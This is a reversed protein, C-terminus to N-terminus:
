SGDDVGRRNCEFVRNLLEALRNVGNERSLPSIDDDIGHGVRFRNEMVRRIFDAIGVGDRGAFVEGRGFQVLLKGLDAAEDGIGLIPRGARLYEFTSGPMANDFTPQCLLDAGLMYAIADPHSVPPIVSVRVVKQMEDLQKRTGVAVTGVQVFHVERVLDHTRAALIQLGRLLGSLDKQQYLVGVHAIVFKGEPRKQKVDLFDSEDYGNSIVEIPLPPDLVFRRIEALEREGVIVAASAHRLINRELYMEFAKLPRIREPIFFGDAWPDRYDVVHPVKWMRAIQWGLIAASPTPITSLVLDCRKHKPLTAAWAFGFPVWFVKADPILWAQPNWGRVRGLDASVPEARLRKEIGLMRRMRKVTRYPNPAAVRHVEVDAVDALLSPDRAVPRGLRTTLVVPQWGYTPLYKAFKTPRQVGSGGTPPFDYTILLVRKM